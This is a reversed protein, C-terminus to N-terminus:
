EGTGTLLVVEFVKQFDVDPKVVAYKGTGDKNNRFEIVTGLFIGKPYIGGIGSTVVSDGILIDAGETIVTMKCLGDKMLSLDGDIQVLDDTRAIMGSVSHDYNIVSVVKAWNKGVQSVRGIVGKSSIVPTNETVGADKGKNVTFVNFWNGADKGIVTAAVPTLLDKQNTLELLGKLRENEDKYSSWERNNEKLKDIEAKLQKNEEALKKTNGWGAFTNEVGKAVSTIGSQVPTFVNGLWSSVIKFVPTFICLIVIVAILLIALVARTKKNKM